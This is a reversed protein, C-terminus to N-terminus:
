NRHELGLQAMFLRHRVQRRRTDATGRDM